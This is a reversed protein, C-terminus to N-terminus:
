EAAPQEQTETPPPTDRIQNQERELIEQELLKESLSVDASIALKLADQATAYSDIFKKDRFERRAELFKKEAQSAIYGAEATTDRGTEVEFRLIRRRVEELKLEVQVFKGKVKEETDSPENTVTAEVRLAEKQIDLTAHETQAIEKQAKEPVQSRLAALQQRQQEAAREVKAAVRAADRNGAEALSQAKGQAARFHMEYNQLAIQVASGDGVAVEQMEALRKQAIRLHLDAKAQEGTTLREQMSEIALKMPYLQDGPLAESAATVLGGGILFFCMSFIFAVQWTFPQQLVLAPWTRVPNARITM